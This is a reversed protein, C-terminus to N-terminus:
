AFYQFPKGGPGAADIGVTGQASAAVAFRDQSQDALCALQVADVAVRSRQLGRCLAEASIRTEVGDMAIEMIHLLKQTFHLKVSPQKVQPYGGMLKICGLAAKRVM